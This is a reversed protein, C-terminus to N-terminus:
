AAASVAARQGGVLVATLGVDAGDGRDVLTPETVEQVRSDRQVQEVVHALLWADIRSSPEGVLAPVGLAPFARNSGQPTALRRELAAVVNAEGSVLAVDDFGPGTRVIPVLDGDVLAWDTGYLEADTGGGTPTATDLSGLSADPPLLLVTGPVATGPLGEASLYPPVLDNLEAIETWRGENGLRALAVRGLDEGAQLEHTRYPRGGLADDAGLTRPEQKLTAALQEAADRAADVAQLTAVLDPTVREREDVSLTEVGACVDFKTTDLLRAVSLAYAAPVRRLDYLNGAAKALTSAAAALTSLTQLPARVAMALAGTWAEMLGFVVGIGSAVSNALDLVEGGHEIVAGIIGPIVPPRAESVADVSLEYTLTVRRDLSQRARFSRPEVVYHLGRDFHRLILQVTRDNPAPQAAWPSRAATLEYEELFRRLEEFLARSPRFVPRGQYDTGLRAVIGVEGAVNIRRLRPPSHDTVAGGQTWTTESSPVFEVDVSTPALPFRYAALINEPVPVVSELLGSPGPAAVERVELLLFAGPTAAAQLSGLNGTISSM